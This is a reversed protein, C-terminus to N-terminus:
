TRRSGGGAATSATPLVRIRLFVAMSAFATVGIRFMESMTSLKAQNSFSPQFFPKSQPLGGVNPDTQEPSHAIKRQWPASPPRPLLEGGGGFPWPSDPSLPTQIDIQTSSTSPTWRCQRSFPFHLARRDFQGFCVPVLSSRHLERPQFRGSGNIRQSTRQNVPPSQGTM